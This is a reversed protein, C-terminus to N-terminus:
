KKWKLGLEYFVYIIGIITFIALVLELPGEGYYNYNSCIVWGNSISSILDMVEMFAFIIVCSVLVSRIADLINFSFNIIINM